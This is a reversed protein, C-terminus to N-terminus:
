GRTFWGRGFWALERQNPPLSLLKGFAVDTLRVTHDYRPRYQSVVVFPVLMGHESRVAQRVALAAALDRGGVLSTLAGLNECRYSYAPLLVQVVLIAVTTALNADQPLGLASVGLKGDAEGEVKCLSEYATQRRDYLVKLKPELAVDEEDIGCGGRVWSNILDEIAVSTAFLSLAAQLWRTRHETLRPDDTM